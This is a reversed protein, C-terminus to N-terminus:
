DRFDKTLPSLFVLRKWRRGDMRDAGRQNVFKRFKRTRKKKGARDKKKGGRDVETAEGEAPPSRFSVFAEYRLRERARM